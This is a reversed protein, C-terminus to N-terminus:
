FYLWNKDSIPFVALNEEIAKNRLEWALILIFRKNFFYLYKAIFALGKFTNISIDTKMFISWPYFNRIIEFLDSWYKKSSVSTRDGFSWFCLWDQFGCIITILTLKCKVLSSLSMSDNLSAFVGLTMSSLWLRIGGLEGRFRTGLKEM